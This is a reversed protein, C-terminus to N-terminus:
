AMMTGCIGLSILCYVGALIMFVKGAKKKQKSLLIAGIIIFLLAPGFMILLILAFLGDLNGVELMM